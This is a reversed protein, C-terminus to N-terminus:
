NAEQSDERHSDMWERLGALDVVRRRGIKVIPFGQSRSLKYAISRSIGLQKALEEISIAIKEM